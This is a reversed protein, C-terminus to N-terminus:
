PQTGPVVSLFTLPMAVNMWIVFGGWKVSKALCDVQRASRSQWKWLLDGSCGEPTVLPGQPHGLLAPMPQIRLFRSVRHCRADQRWNGRM